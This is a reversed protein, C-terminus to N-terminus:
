RNWTAADGKGVYQVVRGNKISVIKIAGSGYTALVLVGDKSLEVDRFLSPSAIVEHLAKTRIDVRYLSSYGHQDPNVGILLSRGGPWWGIPVWHAGPSFAHVHPGVRNARGIAQGDFPLVWVEAPWTRKPTAREYAISGYGVIPNSSLGDNTLRIQRGGDARVAFLDTKTEGTAAGSVSDFVVWRRDPGISVNNIEGRVLVKSRGTVPDVSEIATLATNKVAVNLILTKSDSSWIVPSYVHRLLMHAERTDRDYVYLPAGYTATFDRWFTVWRGNPSVSPGGGKVLMHPHRGDADTIWITAVNGEVGSTVKTFAIVHKTSEWHNSVTEGSGCSVTISLLLFFALYTISRRM